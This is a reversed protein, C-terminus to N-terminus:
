DHQVRVYCDTYMPTSTFVYVEKNPFLQNFYLKVQEPNIPQHDLNKVLWTNHNLVEILQPHNNMQPSRSILGLM